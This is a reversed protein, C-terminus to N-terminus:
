SFQHPSPNGPHAGPGADPNGSFPPMTAHGPSEIGSRRLVKGVTLFLIWLDLGLSANRTYWVDMAFREPWDVTNRGNVQAWGTIGGPLDHRRAQEPSYLPLYHPVLPRPGVLSLHGRLVSLLGPLEDLSSSRLWRGFPGLREADPLLTGDPGRAASMSRLKQLRFPKSGLGIREQAFLVPSGLRLRVLLAGLLLLPGWLPLALLTLALDMFRKATPYTGAPADYRGWRTWAPLSVPAPKM